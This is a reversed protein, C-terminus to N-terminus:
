LILNRVHIYSVWFLSAARLAAERKQTKIQGSVIPSLQVCGTLAKLLKEFLTAGCREKLFTELWLYAFDWFSYRV